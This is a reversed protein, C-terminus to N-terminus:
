LRTRSSSIGTQCTAELHKQKKIAALHAAKDPNIRLVTFATPHHFDPAVEDLQPLDSKSMSIIGVLDIFEAEYAEDMDLDLLALAENVGKAVLPVGSWVCTNSYGLMLQMVQLEIAVRLHASVRAQKLGRGFEFKLRFLQKVRWRM